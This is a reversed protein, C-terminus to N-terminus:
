SLTLRIMQYSHPPLKATLIGNAVAAGSGKKGKNPTVTQPSALTNAAELPAGALVQCDAVAAPGFGQLAAELDITESEHRNVAFFALARREADHVGAIDLYPM